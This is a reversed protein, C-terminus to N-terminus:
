KNEYNKIYEDVAEALPINKRIGKATCSLAATASAFKLNEKFDFNKALGYSFAGHFVDGAGNSDVAEVKYASLQMVKNNEMYILGSGGDTIVTNKTMTCIERIADRLSPMETFSLAFDKSGILWDVKRYLAITGRHVSGADLVTLANPFKEMLLLSLEPLHGDFLLVKPDLSDVFAPLEQPIFSAKQSIVNRSGDAISLIAAANLGKEHQIIGQCSFGDNKLDEILSKGLTDTGTTAVLESKGGLLRVTLAANAAPGGSCLLFSESLLKEDAEPRRNLSFSFDAVLMGCCLVDISM